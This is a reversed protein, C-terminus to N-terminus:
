AAGPEEAEDPEDPVEELLPFRVVVQAGGAPAAELSMAGGLQRSFAQMLAIGIGPRYLPAGDADFDLGAGDDTITLTAQGPEPRVFTMEITGTRGDPYGHKIANSLAETILLAVPVAAAAPIPAHDFSSHIVIGRSHLGQAHSQQDTLAEAMAAFDVQRVDGSEYLYRHVLALARVRVRAEMLVERAAADKTSKSQLNLFSTVIQLNNKVRHHVERLLADKEDLSRRLETERSSIKHAMASFAEAFQRIERASGGVNPRVDLEDRGYSDVTQLLARIGRAILLEGGIVAVGIAILLMLLPGVIFAITQYHSWSMASASPMGFLIYLSGNQLNAASFFRERGDGGTTVFETARRAAISALLDASPTTAEGSTKRSRPIGHAPEPAAVFHDSSTMVTGKADLLYVVGDEPLGHKQALSGLWPLRIGAVIAGAPTGDPGSAPLLASIIPEATERSLTFYGLTFGQTEKMGQFWPMQSVDAGISRDIASCQVRGSSDVVALDSYEPLSAAVRAMTRSCDPSPTGAAAARIARGEGLGVMLRRTGEILANQSNSAVIALQRVTAWGREEADRYGRYALVLDYIVIPVLAVALALALRARLPDFFNTLGTWVIGVM